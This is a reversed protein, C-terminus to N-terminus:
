LSNGEVVLFLFSLKHNRRTQRQPDHSSFLESNRNTLITASASDVCSGPRPVDGLTEINEESPFRTRVLKDVM